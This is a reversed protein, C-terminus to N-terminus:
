KKSISIGFFQNMNRHKWKKMFTARKMVHTGNESMNSVTNASDVIVVSGDGLLGVATVWHQWNDICLIVPKGELLSSKLWRWADKQSVNEFKAAAAGFERAADMVGNEDTGNEESTRAVSSVRREPVKVGLCRLANVVAAAGCSYNESQFRM